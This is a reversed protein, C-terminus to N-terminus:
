EGARTIHRWFGRLSSPYGWAGPRPKLSHAIPLYAYPLLGLFFLGAWRALKRGTLVGGRYQTWLIWLIAPAEFLVITHQNCM